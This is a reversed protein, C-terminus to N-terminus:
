AAEDAKRRYFEVKFEVPGRPVVHHPEAPYIIADEGARLVHAPRDNRLYILTGSSIVLRGWVGPKTQHDKQLADPLTAETFVPSESYKELTNLIEHM